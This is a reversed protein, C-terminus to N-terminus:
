SRTETLQANSVRKRASDEESTRPIEPSKEKLVSGTEKYWAFLNRISKPIQIKEVM